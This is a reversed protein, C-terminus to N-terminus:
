EIKNRNTPPVPDAAESVDDFMGFGDPINRILERAEGDYGLAIVDFAAALERRFSLDLAEMDTALEETIRVSTDLELREENTGELFMVFHAIIRAIHQANM